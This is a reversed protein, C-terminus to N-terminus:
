LSRPKSLCALCKTRERLLSPKTYIVSQSNDKYFRSPKENVKLEFIFFIQKSFYKLLLKTMREEKRLTHDSHYM